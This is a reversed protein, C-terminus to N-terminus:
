ELMVSKFFYICRSCKPAHLFGQLNNAIDETCKRNEDNEGKNNDIKLAISLQARGVLHGHFRDRDRGPGFRERTPLVNRLGATASIAMTFGSGVVASEVKPLVQYVKM